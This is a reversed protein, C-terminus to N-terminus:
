LHWESTGTRLYIITDLACVIYKFEVKINDVTVETLHGM